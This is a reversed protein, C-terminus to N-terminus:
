ANSPDEGSFLSSAAKFAAQLTKRVARLRANDRLDPHSVLWLEAVHRLDAQQMRRLDACGDGVYTPLMVVGLGQCAASRLLEVSSFAGWLPLTPHSSDAVMQQLFRSDETAIWRASSSTSHGNAHAPDLHAATKAVYNAVVVPALRTGILHQPPVTGKGLTRIAIDAERKSLDFSQSDTKFTLEIDPHESCLPTLAALAFDAVVSDCCTLAVPGELRRDQGQLDRQLAAMQEEVLEARPLMQHGAATLTYGDRHRDFLKTSLQEELLDVRRAVTSHSVGLAAGAARVSGSRALALFHRLDDWDM